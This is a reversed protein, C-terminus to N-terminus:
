LRSFWISQWDGWLSERWKQMSNEREQMDRVPVLTEKMCKYLLTIIWEKWLAHIDKFELEEYLSQCLASIHSPTYHSIWDFFITDIDSVDLVWELIKDLWKIKWHTSFVEKIQSLDIPYNFGIPTDFRNPRLHRPPLIEPNNTSAVVTVPLSWVWEFLTTLAQSIPDSNLWDEKVITDIDEIVIVIPIGTNEHIDSLRKRFGSVSKVLLDAFETIWVNIVIAEFDIKEGNTPLIYKREWLIHNLLQSKGTGYVGYLLLNHAKWVKWKKERHQKSLPWILKKVTTDYQKQMTTAPYLEVGQMSLKNYLSYIEGWLEQPTKLARTKLFYSIQMSIYLFTDQWVDGAFRLKRKSWKEQPQVDIIHTNEFWNTWTFFWTYKKNWRTTQLPHEFRKPEWSSKLDSIVPKIWSILTNFDDQSFDTPLEWEIVHQMIEILKKKDWSTDENIKLRFSWLNYFDPAQQDKIDRSGWLFYRWFIYKTKEIWWLKVALTIDIDYLFWNPNIFGNRDDNKEKEDWLLLYNWTVWNNDHIQYRMEKRIMGSKIRLIPHMDAIAIISDPSIWIDELQEVVTEMDTNQIWFTTLFLAFDYDLWYSFKLTNIIDADMWKFKQFIEHVTKRIYIDKTIWQQMLGEREDEGMTDDYYKWLKLKIRRLVIKRQSLQWFRKLEWTQMNLVREDSIEWSHCVWLLTAKIAELINKIDINDLWDTPIQKWIEKLQEEPPRSKFKHSELLSMFQSPNWFGRATVKIM